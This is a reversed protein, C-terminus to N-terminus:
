PYGLTSIKAELNENLFINSSKVDRHIVRFQVSTGRHLYDLGRAAGVCINLMQVRFGSEEGYGLLSVIYSHRFKSLMETEAWFEIAGQNSDMNSRKIEVDIQASFNYEGKYCEWVRWLDMINNRCIACNDLVIDWAYLSVVNWKKIEFRKGKKALVGSSSSSSSPEEKVQVMTVNTDNIRLYEEVTPAHTCRVSLSDRFEDFLELPLGKTFINAYNAVGRYEAEVTSPSLTPQRKFSWSLLNNGLFVCYGSTSRRTTLCGAWDADLYAILSDTTSSFLHLGYDLSGHIMCIFVFQFRSPVHLIRFRGIAVLDRVFHIDIEIHKTLQHQVSNSSLYVASVNDCYVITTSSLPTYLEHLLNRIWCTEAVTNADGRYEAEVISPSLTLQRKSSWSLLNNGLFVCYGSTSRRTTLCGAWDADSYAILSDTTSSFLQLGYDLTGQVYRLIRKLASFHPEWTDHMYLCVQMHARKLIEMAYKRQSLFMGSSDCRVLSGLFIYDVYLLLFAIDDGQIYIFLFSDCRSPTFGVTTVYAAFRQFWAHPAHILDYLSRQLLYVYNSHEPEWFSSPQHMYVTEVLDSHLFANKVGHQHVPWHQSIVLSLVTRISGSKVVLSFTEDVDVGEVQTNGNAILLAKYQSLSGGALFKHRFLWMCHVINAGELRPVSTWTKNKILANYADFMANRWNPYNFAEKYSRPLPSITSVHGAYRPNPLTT